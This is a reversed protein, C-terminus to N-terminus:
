SYRAASPLASSGRGLFTCAQPVNKIHHGLRGDRSKTDLISPSTCPQHQLFAQIPVAQDHEKRRQSVISVQPFLNIPAATAAAAAAISASVLPLYDLWGHLLGIHSGAQVLKRDSQIVDVKVKYM